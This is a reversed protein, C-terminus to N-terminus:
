HGSADEQQHLGRSLPRARRRGDGGHDGRPVSLTLDPDVAALDAIMHASQVALKALDMASGGGFGIVVDAKAAEAAALLAARDTADPEPRIRDFVITERALKLAAGRAANFSDSRGAGQAARAPRGLRRRTRRRRM